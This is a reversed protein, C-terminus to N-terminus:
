LSPHTKEEYNEPPKGGYTEYMKPWSSLVDEHFEGGQATYKQWQWRETIRQFESATHHNKRNQNPPYTGGRICVNAIYAVLSGETKQAVSPSLYISLYISLIYVDEWYWRSYFWWWTERDRHKCLTHELAEQISYPVWLCSPKSLHHWYQVIMYMNIYIYKYMCMYVYMYVHTYWLMCTQTGIYMSIHVYTLVYSYICIYICVYMCVYMCIYACINYKYM